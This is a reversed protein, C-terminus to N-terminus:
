TDEGTKVPVHHVLERIDLHRHRLEQGASVDGAALELMTNESWAPPEETGALVWAAQRAAGLAVHEAPEPVAVPLGFVTPAVARVAASQAAGGILLIRRATIGHAQVADLGAALGFLMGEVASRALNEPTMNTRRLGHLSGAADPLNPTREGDLYPLLTLGGAGPRAGLALRDLGVLDVGLMNATATLVRAANLTCALPLFRGTADAFGAVIGTADAPATESVGFVTGSTGLSVVVDGEGLELALAAAMNDGTGASVLMGDATRGAAERPGLVRPLRPNRGGFARALIDERYVNKAPSFYGTGSADGRDTVAEGTLRWTLWDHPLLVRAVRDALEPEHEAMWRLKTVTFSAVPVSGVAEAWVLPGGLETVLNDAAKGSRTDNWLLAPRVVDGADDLTVMGHQQGGVGIAQVGDLLGATAESFARWWVQPDVETTDPHAARGTRVVAGTRADCVVVKTSQTSSDVGAVLPAATM